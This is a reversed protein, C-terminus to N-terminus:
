VRVDIKLCRDWRFGSVGQADHHLEGDWRSGSLHEQFYGCQNSLVRVGHRDLDANFHTHGYIWAKVPPQRLGTLVSAFAPALPDADYRPHNTGARPPHHTGSAEVMACYRPLRFGFFPLM